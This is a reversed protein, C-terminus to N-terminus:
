NSWPKIINNKQKTLALKLNYRGNLGKVAEIDELKCFIEPVIYDRKNKKRLEKTRNFVESRIISVMFTVFAKARISSDSQVYDVNAGLHSKLARFLKEVVDKERYIELATIIWKM